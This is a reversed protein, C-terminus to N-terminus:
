TIALSYHDSAAVRQFPFGSRQIADMLPSGPRASTELQV